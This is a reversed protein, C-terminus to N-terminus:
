SRTAAVVLLTILLFYFLFGLMGMGTTTVVRQGDRVFSLAGAAGHISEESDFMSAGRWRGLTVVAVIVRGTGVLVLNFVFELLAGLLHDMTPSSPLRVAPVFRVFAQNHTPMM